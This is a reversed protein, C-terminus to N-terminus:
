GALSVVGALRCKSVAEVSFPCRWFVGVLVFGRSSVWFFVDVFDWGGSCVWLVLGVFVGSCERLMGQREGANGCRAGVIGLMRETYVSSESCRRQACRCVRAGRQACQRDGPVGAGRVSSVRDSGLVGAGQVSSESCENVVGLVREACV